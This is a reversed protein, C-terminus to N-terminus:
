ELKRMFVKLLEQQIAPTFEEYMTNNYVNNKLGSIDIRKEGKWVWSVEVGTGLDEHNKLENDKVLGVAKIIIKQDQISRSKIYIIDGVKVSKLIMFLEPTEDMSYGICACSKNIFEETKDHKRGYSAGIGYIAM